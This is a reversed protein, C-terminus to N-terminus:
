NPKPMKRQETILKRCRAEIAKIPPAAPLEEPMPGGLDAIAQRVVKGVRENIEIALRETRAADRVLKKSTQTYHFGNAMLEELGMRDHLNEAQPIGKKEKIDRVGMGYLAMKGHHHFVAYKQVGADKAAKNLEKFAESVKGRMQLRQMDASHQQDQLEQRRAQIAFYTKAAAIEVKSSDGSLAILYCAYRTLIWEETQRTAGKGLEAMKVTQHFHRRPDKGSNRCAEIARSILPLFKDWTSYNLVRQIDRGRWVEIGSSYTGQCADLRKAFTAYAPVGLSIEGEM